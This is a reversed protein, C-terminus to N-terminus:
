PGPLTRLKAIYWVAAHLRGRLEDADLEELAGDLLAGGCWDGLCLDCCRVQWHEVQRGVLSEVAAQCERFATDAYRIMEESYEVDEWCSEFRCGEAESASARDM